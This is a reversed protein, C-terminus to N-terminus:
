AVGFWARVEHWRAEDIHERAAEVDLGRLVLLDGLDPLGAAAAYARVERIGEVEPINSLDGGAM